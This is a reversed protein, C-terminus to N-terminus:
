RRHLNRAEDEPEHKRRLYSQVYARAQKLFTEGSHGNRFQGSEIVFELTGHEVPCHEREAVYFVQVAGDADNVVSFRFADAASDRPFRPCRHRAYGINCCDRLTEQGPLWERMPHVRCVGTYPDGLPLRPHRRWASEPFKKVPYFYPCAM